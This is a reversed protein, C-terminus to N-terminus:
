FKGKLGLGLFQRVYPSNNSINFIYQYDLLVVLAKMVKYGTTVGLDVPSDVRKDGFAQKTLVNTENPFKRYEMGLGFNLLFGSDWNNEWAMKTGLYYYRSVDVGGVMFSDTDTGTRLKFDFSDQKEADLSQYAWSLGYTLVDPQTPAAFDKAFLGLTYSHTYTGEADKTKSQWSPALYHLYAYDFGGINADIFVYNLLAGAQNTGVEGYRLGLINLDYENGQNVDKSYTVMRKGILARFEGYTAVGMLETELRRDPQDKDPVVGLKSVGPVDFPLSLDRSPNSDQYSGVWYSGSFKVPTEERKATMEVNPPYVTYRVTRTNGNADTASVEVTSVKDPFVMKKELMVTDGPTIEQAEGNIRVEVVEDNDVIVFSATIQNSELQTHLALDSTLIEPPLKAPDEGATEEETKEQGAAQGAQQAWLLGPTGLMFLMALVVLWERTAMGHRKQLRLTGLDNM